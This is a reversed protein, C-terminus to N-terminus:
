TMNISGLRRTAATRHRTAATMATPANTQATVKPAFQSRVFDPIGGTSTMAATVLMRDRATKPVMTFPRRQARARRSTIHDFEGSALDALASVVSLGWPANAVDRGWSLTISSFQLFSGFGDM